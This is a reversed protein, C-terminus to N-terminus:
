EEVEYPKPLEMWAEVDETIANSNGEQIFWKDGGCWEAITVYGNSTALVETRLPPMEESCPIWQPQKLEEVTNRIVKTWRPCCHREQDYEKCDTCWEFEEEAKTITEFVFQKYEELNWDDNSEDMLTCILEEKNM